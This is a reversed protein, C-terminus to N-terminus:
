FATRAPTVYDQAVHEVMHSEADGVEGAGAGGVSGHEARQACLHRAGLVPQDLPLVEVEGGRVILVRDRGAHVHAEDRGVGGRHVGEPARPLIGAESVVPRGARAGGVARVVVAAEQAVRVAVADFGAQVAVRPRRTEDIV